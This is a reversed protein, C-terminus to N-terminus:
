VQLNLTQYTLFINRNLLIEELLEKFGLGKGIWNPALASGVKSDAGIILENAKVWLSYVFCHAMKEFGTHIVEDNM